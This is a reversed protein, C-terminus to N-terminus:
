YFMQKKAAEMEQKFYIPVYPEPTKQKIEITMQSPKLIRKSKIQKELIDKITKKKKKKAM